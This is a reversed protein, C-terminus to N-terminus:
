QSLFPFLLLGAPSLYPLFGFCFLVRQIWLSVSILSLAYRYSSFSIQFVSTLTTSQTWYVEWSDQLPIWNNCLCQFGIGLTLVFVVIFGQLKWFVAKQRNFLKGGKNNWSDWSQIYSVRSRLFHVSNHKQEPKEIGQRSKQRSSYQHQHLAWLHHCSDIM